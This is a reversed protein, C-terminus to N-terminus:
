KTLEMSTINSLCILRDHIWEVCSWNVLLLRLLRLLHVASICCSLLGLMLLWLVIVEALLLLLLIGLWSKTVLYSIKTTICLTTCQNVRQGMLNVKLWRTSEETLINHKSVASLNISTTLILFLLQLTKSM